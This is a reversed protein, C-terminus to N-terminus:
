IFLSPDYIFSAAAIQPTDFRVGGDIKPAIARWTAGCGLGVVSQRDKARNM